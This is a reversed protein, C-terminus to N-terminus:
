DLNFLKIMGKQWGIVKKFLDTNVVRIQICGKYSFNKKIKHPTPKYITKQFKSIPINAVRSWFKECNEHAYIKHIYVRIRLKEEPIKCFERLWRMMTKIIIPDSNSFQFYGHKRGGEAWYLVIGILALPNKSFSIFEKKANDIVEQTRKEYKLKKALNAKIRGDHSKKKIRKLLKNEQKETLKIDKLWGSLTSKPLSPIISRIDSFTYGSQRLKIAKNKDESRPKM